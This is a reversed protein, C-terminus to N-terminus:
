FGVSLSTGAFVEEEDRGFTSGGSVSLTLTDTAYFSAGISLEAWSAEDPEQRANARLGGSRSSRRSSISAGNEAYLGAVDSFLYLQDNVVYGLGLGISANGGSQEEELRGIDSLEDPLQATTTAESQSWGISASPIIDWNGAIFVWSLAGYVAFSDVESALEAEADSLSEFRDDEPVIRGEFDEQGYTFGLDLDASGVPVVFWASAFLSSRDTVEAQNFLFDSGESTALAIGINGQGLTRSLAVSASSTDRDSSDVQSWSGSVAVNWVPDSAQALAQPVVACLTATLCLAKLKM